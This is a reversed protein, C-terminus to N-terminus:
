KKVYYEAVNYTKQEHPVEISSLGAVEIAKGLAADNLLTHMQDASEMLNYVAIGDATEVVFHAILGASHKPEQFESKLSSYKKMLAKPDGKPEYVCLVAM